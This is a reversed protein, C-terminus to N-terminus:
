QGDNVEFPCYKTPAHESCLVTYYRRHGLTSARQYSLEHSADEHCGQRFCKGDPDHQEHTVDYWESGIASESM